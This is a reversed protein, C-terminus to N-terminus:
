FCCMPPHCQHTRTRLALVMLARSQDLFQEAAALQWLHQTAPEEPRPREFSDWADAILASLAALVAERDALASYGRGRETRPEIRVEEGYQGKGSGSGFSM